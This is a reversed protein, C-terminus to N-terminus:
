LTKLNRRQGIPASTDEHGNMASAVKPTADPTELGIHGQRAADRM